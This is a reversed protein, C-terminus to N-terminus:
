GTFAPQAVVQPAPTVNEVPATTFTNTFTVTSAQASVEGNSPYVVSVPGTGAGSAAACGAQEVQESRPVAVEDFDYNCTWSTSTAGGADAETFTCEQTNVNVIGNTWAGDVIEFDEDDSTTPVGKEDFHLTVVLQASTLGASNCSMVVSSPGTGTGVVVKRVTWTLDDAQQASSGAASFPVLAMAFVAVFLSRRIHASM